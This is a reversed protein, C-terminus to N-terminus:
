GGIYSEQLCGMIADHAPNCISRDGKFDEWDSELQLTAAYTVDRLHPDIIKTPRWQHNVDNTRQVVQLEFFPISGGAVGLPVGATVQAGQTVKLEKLHDYIITWASGVITQERVEYDNTDAQFRTATVAGKASSQGQTFLFDGVHNTAKDWPGFIVGRNAFVPPAEQAPSRSGDNGPSGNGTPNANHGAPVPVGILSKGKRTCVITRGLVTRTQEIVRCKKPLAQDKTAGGAGPVVDVGGPTQKNFHQWVLRGSNDPACILVEANSVVSQREVSCPDNVRVEASAVSADPILAGGELVVSFM